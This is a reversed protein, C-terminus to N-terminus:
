PASIRLRVRADKVPEKLAIGIRLPKRATHVDENLTECKVTFPVNETEVEVRVVQKGDTISFAKDSLEKWEGWTILATEFPKADTFQVEDTVTLAPMVRDFVFSRELKKLAPEAYASRIDFVVTDQQEGFDAHLVMAKAEAGTRQLNGGVVPVAHGFSNIVKSEYRHSGFTRATYV